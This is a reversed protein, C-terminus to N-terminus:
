RIKSEIANLLEIIEHSLPGIREYEQEATAVQGQHKLTVIRRVTAHLEEHAGDLKQMEPLHGYNAMGDGYYWKGLDCDHHSVAQQETLVSKGDLFDRLRSKWQLHKFRIQAFNVDKASGIRRRSSAGKIHAEVSGLKFFSITDELLSVQSSLEESTSALEESASATQQVVQDLQQIALNIQETGSSQERSAASIEQTMEATKQIDPVLLDLMKGAREAVAVSSKSLQTIEGAAEQSREALKRVEAAVVAFGRGSEGARAAEIAANLALLNTQRAIEEIIAIKEAIQKMAVVAEAVAEGGDRADAAAKLAINETAHSNDANQRINAAMEEISSAAEETSSAQETAGQSLTEASASVEASGTNVNNAILWINAIVDRLRMSTDEIAQLVEGVEDKRRGPIRITLDGDAVASAFRVGEALPKTISRTVLFAVVIGVLLALGNFLVTVTRVNGALGAISGAGDIATKEQASRMSIVKEEIAAADADFTEMQINGAATGERLYADAMALGQRHFEDFAVTADDMRKMGESDGRKRYYDKFTALAGRVDSATREAEDRGETNGSLAYDTVLDQVHTVGIVIDSATTALPLSTGQLDEAQRQVDSAARTTIIAAIGVLVFIAAFSIGLRQGIRLSVM